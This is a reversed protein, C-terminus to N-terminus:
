KHLLDKPSLKNSASQYCQVCIGFLIFDLYLNFSNRLFNMLISGGELCAGEGDSPLGGPCPM